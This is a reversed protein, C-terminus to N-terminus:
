EKKEMGPRSNTTKSSAVTEPCEENTQHSYRHCGNKKHIIFEENQHEYFLFDMDLVNGIAFKNLEEWLWDETKVLSKLAYKKIQGSVVLPLPFVTTADDQSYITLDGNIEVIGYQIEDVKTVNSQRIMMGLEDMTIRLRQMEDYDMIGDKIIISPESNILPRVKPKRIQIKAFIIQLAVMVFVGMLADIWIGDGTIGGAAVNAMVMNIVFDFTSLQGLERKGMIRYAVLILLYVVFSIGMTSLINKIDFM